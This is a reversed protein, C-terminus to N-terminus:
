STTWSSSTSYDKYRVPRLKDILINGKSDKRVQRYHLYYNEDILGDLDNDIGDYANPNVTEQGDRLIINGEALSTVGPIVEIQAM